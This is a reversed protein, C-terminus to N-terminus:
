RDTWVGFLKNSATLDNYDGKFLFDSVSSTETVRINPMWGNAGPRAQLLLHRLLSERQVGFPPQPPRGMAHVTSAEGGYQVEIAPFGQAQELGDDNL